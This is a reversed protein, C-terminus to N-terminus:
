QIPPPRRGGAEERILRQLGREGGAAATAHNFSFIRNALARLPGPLHWDATLVEDQIVDVYPGQQSLRVTTSGSLRLRGGLVLQDAEEAVDFALELPEAEEVRRM